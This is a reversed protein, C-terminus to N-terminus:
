DSAEDSGLTALGGGKPEGAPDDDDGGLIPKMWTVDM